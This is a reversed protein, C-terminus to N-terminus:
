RLIKLGLFLNARGILDPYASSALHQYEGPLIQKLIM